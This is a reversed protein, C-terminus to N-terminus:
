TPSPNDLDFASTSGGEGRGEGQIRPHKITFPISHRINDVLEPAETVGETMISDIIAIVYFLEGIQKEEFHRILFINDHRLATIPGTNIGM